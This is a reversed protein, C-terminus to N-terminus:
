EPKGKGNNNRGGIHFKPILEWEIKEKFPIIYMNVEGTKPPIPEINSCLQWEVLLETIAITRNIDDESVTTTMGDMRMLEKFHVIYYKGMKHLIHCSQSLTKTHRNAIGIRTLTEKIKLFDDEFNLKVEIM